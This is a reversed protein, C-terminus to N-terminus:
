GQTARLGCVFSRERYGEHLPALLSDLLMAHFDIRELLERDDTDLGAGFQPVDVVEEEVCRWEPDCGELPSYHGEQETM